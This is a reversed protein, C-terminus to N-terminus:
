CDPPWSLNELFAQVVEDQRCLEILSEFNRVGANQAISAPCGHPFQTQVSHHLCYWAVASPGGRRTTSLRIGPPSSGMIRVTMMSLKQPTNSGSAASMQKGHVKRVPSM